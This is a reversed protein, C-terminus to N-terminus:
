GRHSTHHRGQCLFIEGPIAIHKARENLVIPHWNAIDTLEGASAHVGHDSRRSGYASTVVHGHDSSEELSSPGVECSLRRGYDGSTGREPKPCCAFGLTRSGFGIGSSSQTDNHLLSLGVVDHCCFGKFRDGDYTSARHACLNGQL